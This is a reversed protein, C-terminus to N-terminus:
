ELKINLCGYRLVSRGRIGKNYSFKNYSVRLIYGGSVDKIM